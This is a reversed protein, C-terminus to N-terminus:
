KRRQSTLDATQENAQKNSNPRITQALATNPLARTQKNSPILHITHQQGTQKCRRTAQSHNTANNTEHTQEQHPFPNGATQKNTPM